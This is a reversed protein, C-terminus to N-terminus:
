RRSAGGGRRGDGGGARPRDARRRPIAGIRRCARRLSTRSRRGARRHEAMRCRDVARVAPGAADRHHRDRARTAGRAASRRRRRSGCSRDPPRRRQGALRKAEDLGPTAPLTMASWGALGLAAAAAAGDGGCDVYAGALVGAPLRALARVADQAELGPAPPALVIVRLAAGATRRPWVLPVPSAFAADCLRAYHLVLARASAPSSVGADGAPLDPRVRSAGSDDGDGDGATGTIGADRACAVRALRRLADHDGPAYGRAAAHDLLAPIAASEAALALLLPATTKAMEPAALRLALAAVLADTDPTPAAAIVLALPGAVTPVGTLAPMREFAAAIRATAGAGGAALSAIGAIADARADDPTLALVRLSAELAAPYDGGALSAEAIATWAAVHAPAIATAERWAAVAAPLRGLQWLVEGLHFRADPARPELRAAQRFCLMADVPRGEWQHARGRALWQAFPPTAM